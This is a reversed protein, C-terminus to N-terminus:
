AYGQIKMRRSRRPMLMGRVSVRVQQLALLHLLGKRRMFEPGGCVNIM